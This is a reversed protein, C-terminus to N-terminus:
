FHLLGLALNQGDLSFNAILMPKQTNIKDQEALLSLKTGISAQALDGTKDFISFFQERELGLAASLISAFNGDPENILVHSIDSLVLEQSQLFDKIEVKLRSCIWDTLKHREHDSGHFSFASANKHWDHDENRRPYADIREFSCPINKIRFNESGREILSAAAGEGLLCGLDQGQAKLLLSIMHSVSLLLIRKHDGRQLLAKALEMQSLFSACASDVQLVSAKEAKIAKLVFPGFGINVTDPFSSSYIILDISAPEIGHKEILKQACNEALHRPLQGAQAWTRFQPFKPNGANVPSKEILREGLYHTFAWMHASNSTKM